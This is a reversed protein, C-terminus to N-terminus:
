FVTSTITDMEDTTKILTHVQSSVNGPPNIFGSLIFNTGRLHVLLRLIM